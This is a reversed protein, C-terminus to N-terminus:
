YEKSGIKCFLRGDEREVIAFSFRNFLYGIGRKGLPAFSFEAFFIVLM